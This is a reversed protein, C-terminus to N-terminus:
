YLLVSIASSQRHEVVQNAEEMPLPYVSTGFSSVSCQPLQKHRIKSHSRTALAPKLHPRTSKVGRCAPPHPGHHHRTTAVPRLRASKLMQSEIRHIHMRLKDCVIQLSRIQLITVSMPTGVSHIAPKNPSVRPKIKEQKRGLYAM